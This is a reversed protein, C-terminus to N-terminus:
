LIKPQFSRTAISVAARSCYFYTTRIGLGALWGEARITQRLRAAAQEGTGNECITVRAGHVSAIESSLSRLCEITLDTEVYNVIVIM